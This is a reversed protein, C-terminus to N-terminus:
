EGLITLKGNGKFKISMKIEGKVSTDVDASEVKINGKFDAASDEVNTFLEIPLNTGAVMAKMLAVQGTTDDKKFIGEMSGDWAKTSAESTEWGEDEFSTTDVLNAKIGLKWANMKLVDAQTSTDGIKIKAKEGTYKANAM